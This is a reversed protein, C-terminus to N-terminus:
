LKFAYLFAAPEEKEFTIGDALLKNQLEKITAFLTNLDNMYEKTRALAFLPDTFGALMATTDLHLAEYSNVLKIQTQVYSAPTYVELTRTVLGRYSEKSIEIKKLREPNNTQIADSFVAMENEGSAPQTKMVEAVGNAYERIAEDSDPVILMDAVAYTKSQVGGEVSVLANEVFKEKDEVVGSGASKDKLYDTLFAESFKGTLTTPKEYTGISTTAGDPLTVTDVIRASLTEEWDPKGNGDVDAEEIYVRKPAVSVVASADAGGGGKDKPLLLVVLVIFTGMLLAGGIRLYGKVM